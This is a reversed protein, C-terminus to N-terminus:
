GQKCRAVLLFRLSPSRDVPHSKWYPNEYVQFQVGLPECLRQVAQLEVEFYTAIVCVGGNKMSRVINTFIKGWIADDRTAEPHVGITLGCEPLPECALDMKRLELRMRTFKKTAYKEKQPWNGGRLPALDSGLVSAGCVNPRSLFLRALFPLLIQCEMFGACFPVSVRLTGSADLPVDQMWGTQELFDLMSAYPDGWKPVPPAFYDEITEFDTGPGILVPSYSGAETWTVTRRAAEAAAPVAVPGAVSSTCSGGQPVPAVWPQLMVPRPM